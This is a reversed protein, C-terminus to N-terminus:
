EDSIVVRIGIFIIISGIIMGITVTEKFLIFGWLIGWVVVIAKNSFATTLSISKLNQQWLIAYLFLIFISAGYFLIFKKSLFEYESALKSFVTSISYIFLSIHLFIYDKIKTKNNIVINM